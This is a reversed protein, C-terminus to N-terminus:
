ETVLRCPQIAAVCRPVIMSPLARKSAAFRTRASPSTNVVICMKRFTPAEGLIGLSGPSRTKLLRLM